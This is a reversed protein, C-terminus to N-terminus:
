YRRGRLRALDVEATDAIAMMATAIAALSEPADTFRLRIATTTTPDSMHPLIRAAPRDSRDGTTTITDDTWHAPANVGSM